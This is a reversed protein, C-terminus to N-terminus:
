SSTALCIWALACCNSYIFKLNLSNYYSYSFYSISKFLFFWYFKCFFWSNCFNLTRKSFFLIFSNSIYVWKSDLSLYIFSNSNITFCLLIYILSSYFWISDSWFLLEIFYNNGIYYSWSSFALGYCRSKDICIRSSLRLFSFDM